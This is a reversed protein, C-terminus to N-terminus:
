NPVLLWGVGQIGSPYQRSASQARYTMQSHILLIAGARARARARARDRDRARDRARARAKARARNYSRKPHSQAGAEM